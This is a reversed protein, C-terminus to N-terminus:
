VVPVCFVAFVEFLFEDEFQICERGVPDISAEREELKNLFEQRLIEVLPM